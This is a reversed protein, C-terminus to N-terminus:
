MTRHCTNHLLPRTRTLVEWQNNRLWCWLAIITGVLIVAFPFKQSVLSLRNCETSGSHSSIQFRGLTYTHLNTRQLKESYAHDDRTSINLQNFQWTHSKLVNTACAAV